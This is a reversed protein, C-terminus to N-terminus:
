NHQLLIAPTGDAGHLLLWGGPLSTLGRAEVPVMVREILSGEPLKLKRYGLEFPSSRFVADEDLAFEFVGGVAAFADRVLQFDVSLLDFPLSYGYPDACALLYSGGRDVLAVSYISGYPGELSDASARYVRGEGPSLLTVVSRDASRAVYAHGAGVPLTVQEGTSPDLVVFMSDTSGLPELSIFMKNNAAVSINNARRRGDTTHEITVTDVHWSDSTLDVVGIHDPRDLFVILLSDGSPTLDLVGPTNSTPIPEQYELSALSFVGIQHEYPQTLFLLQRMPEYVRDVVVGGAEAVIRQYPRRIGSFFGINFRATDRNGGQDVAFPILYAWYDDWEPPVPVDFRAVADTGSVLVSDSVMTLLDYGVWALGRDDAGHIVIHVVEGTVFLPRGISVTDFPPELNVSVTPAHFDNVPIRLVLSDTNGKWDAALATVVVSDGLPTEPPLRLLWDGAYDLDLGHPISDTYSVAGFARLVTYGLAGNESVRVSVPISDGPEARSPAEVTVRPPRDDGIVLQATATDARGHVDAWVTVDIQGEYAGRVLAITFQVRFTGPGPPPGFTFATDSIQPFLVKIFNVRADAQRPAASVSLVTTDGPAVTSPGFSATVSVTSTTDPPPPPPETAGEDGCAVGISAAVILAAWQAARRRSRTISVGGVGNGALSSSPLPVLRSLVSDVRHARQEDSM